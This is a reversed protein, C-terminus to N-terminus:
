LRILRGSGRIDTDIKYPNGIYSIDGHGLITAELEKAVRISHDGSGRITIYANQTTLDLGSINGNGNIQSYITFASGRLIISGNGNLTTSLDSAALQLSTNVNGNLEYKFLPTYLTDENDLSGSGDFIVRQYINSHVYIHIPQHHRLTVDKKIRVLLKNNSTYTEVIDTINDEARIEVINKNDQLLHIEFPGSIEVDTFSNTSRTTFTIRGSGSINEKTCGTFIVSFIVLMLVLWGVSLGTYTIIIQKKM